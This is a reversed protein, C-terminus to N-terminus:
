LRFSVVVRDRYNLDIRSVASLRGERKLAGLVMHLRGIKELVGQSGLLIPVNSGELVLTLGLAPDMHIESVPGPLMKNNHRLFAVIGVAQELMRRLGPSADTAEKQDVGTIIPFDLGQQAAARAFIIGQEDVYYLNDLQIMAVASREVVRVSVTDPLSRRVEAMRIWPHNRAKGGAEELDIALINDGPWIDMLARLDQGAVQHLGIFEVSKVELAPSILLSVVIVAGALIFCLVVMGLYFAGMFSRLLDGASRRGQSQAHDPKRNRQLRDILPHNLYATSM